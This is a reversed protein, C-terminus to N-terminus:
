QPPRLSLRQRRDAHRGAVASGQGLAAAGYVVYHLALFVLLPMLLMKMVILVAMGSWQGRLSYIALSLGLAFLATPISADSLMSSCATLSPIFALAPSGGFRRPSCPWSSQMAPSAGSCSAAWVSTHFAGAIAPWNASCPQPLGSFLRTSPSSLALRFSPTARWLLALVLPTGLLAVNGFGVAM